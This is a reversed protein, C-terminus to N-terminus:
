LLRPGLREGSAPLDSEDGAPLVTGVMAALDDDALVRARIPGSAARRLLQRRDIRRDSAALVLNGSRRGRLVPPEAMLVVDGFVARVTAAVTRTLRFPSADSLNCVFLGAVRLVDRIRAMATLTFLSTVTEPGDYVDCVVLDATDPPRAALVDVADALEVTVGPVEGLSAAMGAIERSREAVVQRSGPHRAAVWRPITLLGGGLHLADLPADGPQHTSMAYEAMQVYEFELHLPDDVDVFSQESGDVLLWWGAARDADRILEATM